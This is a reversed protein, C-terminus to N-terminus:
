AILTQALSAISDLLSGLAFRQEACDEFNRGEM